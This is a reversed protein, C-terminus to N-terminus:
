NKGLYLFVPFHDSYGGLYNTGAYSRFPYGQYKGEKEALWDRKFVDADLFNLGYPSNGVLSSSIIIQDFLNWIGKYELTGKKESFLGWMPNYLDGEQVLDTNNKVKLHDIVSEDVPDDNLDGMIIVGNAPNKDLIARVSKFCIDAAANRLPATEKQGKSRSPWHNVFIDVPMGKMIGTVQLIDRTFFDDKGEIKVPIAKSATVKLIKPQYLLAVDIGRKDPSDYHIIKYGVKNLPPTSVLDELVKLNEVEALGVMSPADKTGEEGIQGIVEALHVMKEHYRKGDWKAPSSPTFEQDDINPDDITDYLNELNYFAICVKTEKSEKSKKAKANQGNAKEFHIGSIALIIALFLFRFNRM